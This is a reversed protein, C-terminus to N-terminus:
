STVIRDINIAYKRIKNYVTGRSLRLAAAAQQVNGKANQLARLIILKELEAFSMLMSAGLVQDLPPSSKGITKPRLHDPISDIITKGKPLLNIMGELVNELERVNGPWTHRLFVEMVPDSVGTVEKKLALSFKRVFSQVLPPIDGPRDRLAPLELHIVRFRYYLDERFSGRKVLEALNRNTTGIVRVSVPIDRDGGVRHFCREQLVRLLKAQMDLPMDGIEDLLITGGDAIEFKGSQGGRRAGTFAGEEYGFLESELLERPIAACNLAVFPGAARTSATHISQAVVEKGTGSEGEILVTSTSNAAIKAVELVREFAPDACIINDFSFRARSGVLRQARKRARKLETFTIVYGDLRGEGGVIHANVLLEIEGRHVVEEEVPQEQNFNREITTGAFLRAITMSQLREKDVGLLRCAAPNSLYLRGRRDFAIVGEDLSAITAQQHRNALRLEDAAKVNEIASGAYIGFTTLLVQDADMLLGGTLRKSVFVGGFVADKARLPVGLVTGWRAPGEEQRKEPPHQDNSLFTLTPEGHAVVQHVCTRYPEVEDPDMNTLSAVAMKGNEDPMVLFGQDSYTLRVAMKPLLQVLDSMSQQENIKRSIDLLNRINERDSLITNISAVIHSEAGSFVDIFRHVSGRTSEAANAIAELADRVEADLTPLKARLKGTGCAIALASQLVESACVSRASQIVAMQENLEKNGLRDSDRRGYQRFAAQLVEIEKWNGCDSYIVQAKALYAVPNAREHRHGSELMFIGIGYYAHALARVAGIMEFVRIARLYHETAGAYEEQGRSAVALALQTKGDLYPDPQQALLTRAREAVGRVEEYEGAAAALETMALLGDVIVQTHADPRLRDLQLRGCLAEAEGRSGNFLHVRIMGILAETVAPDDKDPQDALVRDHYGYAIHSEGKGLCCNGLLNLVRFYHEADDRLASRELLRHLCRLSAELEGKRLTLRGLEVEHALTTQSDADRSAELLEDIQDQLTPLLTM